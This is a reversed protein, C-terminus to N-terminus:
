GQTNISEPPIAQSSIFSAIDQGFRAMVLAVVLVMVLNTAAKIWSLSFFQGVARMFLIAMLVFGAGKVSWPLGGINTILYDIIDM